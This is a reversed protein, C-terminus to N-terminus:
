EAGGSGGFCFSFREERGFGRVASGDSGHESGRKSEGTYWANTFRIVVISYSLLLVILVYVM